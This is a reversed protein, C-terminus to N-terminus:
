NLKLLGPFSIVYRERQLMSNVRAFKGYTALFDLFKLNDLWDRNNVVEPGRM